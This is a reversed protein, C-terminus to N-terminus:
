FIIKEHRAAHCQMNVAVPLSAIHCPYHEIHVALATINGGYGAPGIGLQNLEQLLEAELKKYNQDPNASDLPRLLAKKALIPCYDFTGGIGVGIIFPPCSAADAKKATEIIFNKIERIDTTPNFMKLASKNESGAGKSLVTVSFKDGPVVNVYIIGPANTKTNVRDLPDAVVSKRLNQYSQEIAKNLAANLEGGVLEIEQGFEIFMEVVGTDQCIPINEEEAIKANDLLKDIVYRGIEATEEKKAKQLSNKLEAPVICNIRRLAAAVKETITQVQIQRM